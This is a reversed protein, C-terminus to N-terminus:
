QAGSCSRVMIHFSESREIFHGKCALGTSEELSLSPNPNLDASQKSHYPISSSWSPRRAWRATSPSTAGLFPFLPCASEPFPFHRDGKPIRASNRPCRLEPSFLSQIEARGTKPRRSSAIRLQGPMISLRAAAFMPSFKCQGAFSIYKNCVAPALYHPPLSASICIVIIHHQRIALCSPQLNPLIMIFDIAAPVVTELITFLSYKDQYLHM